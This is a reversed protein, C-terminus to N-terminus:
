ASVFPLASPSVADAGLAMATSLIGGPLYSFTRQCAAEKRFIVLRPARYRWWLILHLDRLAGTQRDVLMFSQLSHPSLTGMWLPSTSGSSEM